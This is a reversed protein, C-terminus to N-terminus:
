CTTMLMRYVVSSLETSKLSELGKVSEKQIKYSSVRWHGRSHFKQITNKLGATMAM